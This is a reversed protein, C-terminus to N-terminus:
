FITIQLRLLFLLWDIFTTFNAAHHVAADSNFALAGVECGGDLTPKKKRTDCIVRILFHM